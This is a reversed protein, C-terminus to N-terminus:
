STLEVSARRRKLDAVDRYRYRTSKTAPNKEHQIEGARRLQALRGVTVHLVASAQYRTLRDEDGFTERVYRDIEACLMDVDGVGLRAATSAIDLGSVRLDFAQEGRSKTSESMSM